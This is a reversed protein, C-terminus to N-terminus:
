VYEKLYSYLRGYRNKSSPHTKSENEDVVDGFARIADLLEQKTYKGSNVMHKLALRDCEYEMEHNARESMNKAKVCDPRRIHFHEHLTLFVLQPLSAIWGLAQNINIEDGDTWAIDGSCTFNVQEIGPLREKVINIKSDGLYWGSKSLHFRIDQDITKM